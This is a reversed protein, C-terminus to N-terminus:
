AFLFPPSFTSLQVSVLCVCVCVRVPPRPRRLGVGSSVRGREKEIGGGLDWSLGMTSRGDGVSGCVCMCDLELGKRLFLLSSSSSPIPKSVRIKKRSLSLSFFPIKERKKQSKDKIAMKTNNRRRSPPNLLPSSSQRQAHHRSHLSSDRERKERTNIPANIFSSPFSSFSFFFEDRENKKFPPVGLFLFFHFRCYFVSIGVSSFICTFALFSRVFPSYSSTPSPHFFRNTRDSTFM